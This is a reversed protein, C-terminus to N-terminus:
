TQMIRERAVAELLLIAEAERGSTRGECGGTCFESEQSIQGKNILIPCLGCLFFLEIIADVKHMKFIRSGLLLFINASGKGLFSDGNLFPDGSLIPDIQWMARDKLSNM